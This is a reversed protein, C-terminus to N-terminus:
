LADLERLEPGFQSLKYEIRGAFNPKSRMLVFCSDPLAPSIWLVPRIRSDGGEWKENKMERM